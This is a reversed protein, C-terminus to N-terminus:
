RSSSAVSLDRILAGTQLMAGIAGADIAAAPARGFLSVRGGDPARLGLLM